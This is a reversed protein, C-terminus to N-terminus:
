LSPRDGADVHDWEVGSLTVESADGAKPEALARLGSVLENAGALQNYLATAQVPDPTATDPQMLQLRLAIANRLTPNDLIARLEVAAAENNRWRDMAKKVDDTM